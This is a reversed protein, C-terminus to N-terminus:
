AETHPVEHVKTDPKNPVILIAIIYGIAAPVIATVVALIIYGLRLITSDIDFYEGLGGIVGAVVKDEKSKYLKKTM